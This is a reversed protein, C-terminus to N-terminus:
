PASTDGPIQSLYHYNGDGVSRRLTRMVQAANDHPGQIYMPKGELGFTIDSRGEWPGLHSACGAFDPHPEFGLERAYAVAGFVVHRALDIPVALPPQDYSRFYWDTFGPLKRREV